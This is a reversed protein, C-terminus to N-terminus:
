LGFYRGMWVLVAIVLPGTVLALAWWWSRGPNDETQALRSGAMREFEAESMLETRPLGALEAHIESEIEGLRHRLRTAIASVVARRVEVILEDVDSQTHRHRSIRRRLEAIYPTVGSMNAIQSM